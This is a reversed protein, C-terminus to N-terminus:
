QLSITKTITGTLQNNFFSNNGNSIIVASGSPALATVNTSFTSRNMQVTGGQAYIGLNYGSLECNDLLVSPSYSNSPILLGYGNGNGPSSFTSDRVHINGNFVEMGYNAFHVHTNTIEANLVPGNNGLYIGAGSCNDISTDKIVLDTTGSGSVSSNICNGGFGNVKVNEVILQGGSAYSVGTYAANDGHISLNRLQVVAYGPANVSVATGSTVFITGLDGGDITIPQSITIPGYEGADVVHVESWAPTVNVARQFTRCPATRTCSAADNGTSASVWTQAYVSSAFVIALGTSIINKTTM